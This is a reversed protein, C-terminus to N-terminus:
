YKRGEYEKIIKKVILTLNIKPSIKSPLQFYKNSLKMNLPEFDRNKNLQTKKIIKIKKSINKNICKIIEPISFEKKLSINYIQIKKSNNKISFLNAEIVDDIYVIRFKKKTTIIIKKNLLINEVIKSIFNKNKECIIRPYRLIQLNVNNKNCWNTLIKESILKSLGYYNSPYIENKYNNKKEFIQFSSDYIIKKIDYKEAVKLFTILKKVNENLYNKAHEIKISNPGGLIGAKYLVLKSESLALSLKNMNSIDSKYVKYIKQKNSKSLNIKKKDFCIIKKQCRIKEILKNGIFGSSGVILIKDKKM